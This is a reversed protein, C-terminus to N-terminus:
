NRKKVYIADKIKNYIGEGIGKVQMIEEKQMFGGYQERYDIIAKAKSPGIGKLTQLEELSATNLDILSSSNETEKKSTEQPSEETVTEQEIQSIEQQSEQVLTFNQKESGKWYVWLNALTTLAIFAGILLNKIKKV